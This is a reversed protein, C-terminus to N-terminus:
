KNTLYHKVTLIPHRYLMRPGSYKMVARIHERMDQNYCHAPCKSCRPKNEKFQCKEIRKEVYDFLNSCKRCPGNISSHHDRCYLDIMLKATKIDTEM